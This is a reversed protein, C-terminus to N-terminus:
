LDGQGPYTEELWAFFQAPTGIPIGQYAELALLHKRDETVIYQAKGTVAAWLFPDDKRDGSVPPWDSPMEPVQYNKILLLNLIARARRTAGRGLRPAYYQKGLESIIRLAEDKIYRNWVLVFTGETLYRFIPTGSFISPVLVCTDIVVPITLM